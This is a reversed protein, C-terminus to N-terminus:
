ARYFQQEVAERDRWIELKMSDLHLVTYCRHQQSSDVRIYLTGFDYRYITYSSVHLHGCFVVRPRVVKIAEEVARTREDNAIGRYEPQPIWPSDHLLLVDVRGALKKAIGIFEEPSKRPVGRKERRRLAVIGNIAGFRIGGLERIEGDNMLVPEYNDTLINYMKRLVDLNDHNGYISWVRTKKLLEYFEDENTAEGWDGLSILLGPKHYDVIDLLWRWAKSEDIGQFIRRDYHLDSIILIRM